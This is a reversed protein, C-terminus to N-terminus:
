KIIEELHESDHVKYGRKQYHRRAKEIAEQKTTASVRAIRQRKVSRQTVMTHDPESITVSVRHTRKPFGQEVVTTLNTFAEKLTKM